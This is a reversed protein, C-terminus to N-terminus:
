EAAWAALTTLVEGWIVRELAYTLLTETVCGHPLESEIYEDSSDGYDKYFLERQPLLLNRTLAAAVDYKGAEISAVIPRVLEPEDYYIPSRRDYLVQAVMETLENIETAM